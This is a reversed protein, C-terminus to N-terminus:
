QYNMRQKGSALGLLMATSFVMAGIAGVAPLTLSRIDALLLARGCWLAGLVAFLALCPLTIPPIWVGVTLLLKFSHMAAHRYLTRYFLLSRVHKRWLAGFAQGLQAQKRFLSTLPAGVPARHDHIVVADARAISGVGLLRLFMDSDEGASFFRSEDFGGVRALVSRRILDFKGGLGYSAKGVYRARLVRDWFNMRNWVELPLCSRSQVAAGGSMEAAHLMTALATAKTLYCDGHMFIVMEHCSTKWGINYAHALGGSDNPVIRVNQRNGIPHSRAREVTADTSHDDIILIEMGGEFDQAALSDLTKALTAENNKVPIIISVDHM